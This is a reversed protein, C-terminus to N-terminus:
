RSSNEPNVRITVKNSLASALKEVNSQLLKNPESNTTDNSSTVANESITKVPSQSEQFLYIYM